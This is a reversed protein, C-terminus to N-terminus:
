IWILFRPIKGRKKLKGSEIFESNGENDYGVGSLRFRPKEGYDLPEILDFTRNIVETITWPKTRYHNEVVAINVSLYAYITTSSDGVERQARCTYKFTYNGSDLNITFNPNTSITGGSIPTYANTAVAFGSDNKIELDIRYFTSVIGDGTWSLYNQLDMIFTKDEGVPLPSYFPLSNEVSINGYNADLTYNAKKM